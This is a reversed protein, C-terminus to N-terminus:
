APSCITLPLGDPTTSATVLGGVSIGSRVGPRLGLGSRIGSRHKLSIRVQDWAQDQIQAGVRDEGAEDVEVGVLNWVSETVPGGVQDDIQGQRWVQDFVSNKALPLELM